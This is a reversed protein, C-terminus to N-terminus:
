NVWRDRDPDNKKMYVQFKKRAREIRWQRYREKITDLVNARNSSMTRTRAATPYGGGVMAKAPQAFYLMYILATIM